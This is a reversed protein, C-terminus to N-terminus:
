SKFLKLDRVYIRNHIKDMDDELQYVLPSIVKTITFPGKYKDALKSAIPKAANSLVRNKTLLRDGGQFATDRKSRNYYRAQSEHARRM